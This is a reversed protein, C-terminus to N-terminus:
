SSIFPKLAERGLTVGARGFMQGANVVKTAGFSLVNCIRQPSQRANAVHLWSWNCEKLLNALIVDVKWNM